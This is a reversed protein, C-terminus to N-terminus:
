IWIKLWETNNNCQLWWQNVVWWKNNIPLLPPPQPLRLWKSDAWWWQNNCWWQSAWWVQSNCWQSVWWVPNNLCWKSNNCRHLNPQLLLQLPLLRKCRQTKNVLTTTEERPVVAAFKRSSSHSSPVASVSASSVVLQLASHVELLLKIPKSSLLSLKIMKAEMWGTASIVKGITLLEPVRTQKMAHKCKFRRQNRALSSELTVM